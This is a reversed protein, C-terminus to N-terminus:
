RLAAVHKAFTFEKTTETPESLKGFANGPMHEPRARRLMRQRRDPIMQQYSTDCPSTSKRSTGCPRM